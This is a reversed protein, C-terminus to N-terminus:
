HHGIGWFGREEFLTPEFCGADKVRLEGLLLADPRAFPFNPITM